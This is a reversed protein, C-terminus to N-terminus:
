WTMALSSFLVERGADSARSGPPYSEAYADFL